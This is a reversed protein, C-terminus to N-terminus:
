TSEGSAKINIMQWGDFIKVVFQCVSCAIRIIIRMSLLHPVIKAAFGKSIIMVNVEVGINSQQGVNELIEARDIQFM